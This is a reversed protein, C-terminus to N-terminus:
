ALPEIVPAVVGSLIQALADPAAAALYADKSDTFVYASVGNAFEAILLPGYALDFYEARVGIGTVPSGDTWANRAIIDDYVAVGPSMTASPTDLQINFATGIGGPLSVALRCPLTQYTPNSADLGPTVAEAGLAARIAENDFQSCVTGPVALEAPAATTAPSPVTTPPAPPATTAAPATDVLAAVTTVAAATTAPTTTPIATSSPAVSTSVAPASDSADDGGGCAALSGAVLVLAGILHGHRGTATLM